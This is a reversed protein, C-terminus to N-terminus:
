EPDITMKPDTNPPVVASRPDPLTQPRREIGPDIRSPPPASPREPSESRSDPAPAPSPMVDAACAAFLHVWLGVSLVIVTIILTRMSESRQEPVGPHPKTLSSPISPFPLVKGEVSYAGVKSLSQQARVRISHSGQWLATRGM